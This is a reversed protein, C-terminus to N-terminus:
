LKSISEFGGVKTNLFNSLFQKYIESIGMKHQYKSLTGLIIVMEILIHVKSIAIWCVDENELRRFLAREYETASPECLDVYKGEGFSNM